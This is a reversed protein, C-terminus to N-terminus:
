VLTPTIELYVETGSVAPTKVRRDAIPVNRGDIVVSRIFEENVEDVPAKLAALIEDSDAHVEVAHHFRIRQEAPISNDEIPDLRVIANGDHDKRHLTVRMKVKM